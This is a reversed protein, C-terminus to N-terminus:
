PNARDIPEQFVMPVSGPPIVQRNEAEITSTPKKAPAVSITPPFYQVLKDKVEQPLDAALGGPKTQEAILRPLLSLNTYIPGVGWVGFPRQYTSDLTLRTFPSLSVGLETPIIPFLMGALFYLTKNEAFRARYAPEAVWRRRHDDYVRQFAGGVTAGTDVGGAEDLMIKLLWKTAKIQYSIPWWLFPHNLARQVNSRNEQGYFAATLDHFLSQNVADLRQLVAQTVPDGITRALEAEIGPHTTYQQADVFESYTEPDIIDADLWKKFHAAADEKTAFKKTGREALNWDRDLRALFRDVNGEDSEMIIRKLGPEERMMQKVIDRFPREQERALERILYRWRTQTSQETDGANAWHAFERIRLRQEGVGFALPEGERILGLRRGAAQAKGSKRLVSAELVPGVGGRPLTILMPEVAELGLWRVDMLFRAMHYGVTIVRGPKEGLDAAKGYLAELGESIPTGTERIYNRLRNDARRWLKAPSQGAAHLDALWAPRGGYEKEVAENFLRNLAEPGMLNIRRHIQYGMYRNDEMTTRWSEMAADITRDLKKLGAEDITQEDVFRGIERKFNLVSQAQIEKQPRPGFLHELLRFARASGVRRPWDEM